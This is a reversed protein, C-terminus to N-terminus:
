TLNKNEEVQLQKAQRKISLLFLVVAAGFLGIDRFTIDDIGYFILLALLDLAILGSFIPLYIGSILGLGLIIEGIAHVKLFILPDIFNEVWVPVFGVWNEPHGISNFGAYLFTLGLAIRLIIKEYSKNFRM